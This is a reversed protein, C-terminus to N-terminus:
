KATMTDYYDGFIGEILPKYYLWFFRRTDDPKKSYLLGKMKDVGV